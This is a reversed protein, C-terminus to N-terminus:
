APEAIMYYKKMYETQEWYGNFGSPMFFSDGKFFKERHGDEETIICSGEIIYMFENCPYDVMKEKYPEAEWVGVRVQNLGPLEKNFVEHTREKAQGSVVNEHSIDTWKSLVQATDPV